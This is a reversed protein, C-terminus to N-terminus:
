TKEEEEELEGTEKEQGEELEEEEGYDPERPEKSEESEEDQLLKKEQDNLHNMQGQIYKIADTIVIGNTTLDM